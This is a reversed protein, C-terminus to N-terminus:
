TSRRRPCACLSRQHWAPACARPSCPGCCARGLGSVRAAEQWYGEPYPEEESTDINVALLQLQQRPADWLGRVLMAETVEDVLADLQQQPTGCSMHQQQEYKPLLVGPPPLLM